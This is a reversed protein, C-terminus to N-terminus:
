PRIIGKLYDPPKNALVGFARNMETLPFEYNILERSAFAGSNIMAVARRFDDDENRSYGPHAVIIEYCRDIADRFDFQVCPEHHSSMLVLRGRNGKKMLGSLRGLLSPVGSGEIAFDAMNGGTMQKVRRAVDETKSNITHTAGFKEALALKRHDIDVAILTNLYRGKLAQICWLGMPGCGQIVANDGVEPRAARLVTVVCKQPEGLAYVPDIDAALLVAKEEPIVLYEGYGGVGPLLGTVKDGVRIRECGEGLETVVGAWEHGFRRPYRIGDLTGHWFNLDYNCLGCSSVRVLIEGRSPSEDAETLEIHGPKTLVARKFKM